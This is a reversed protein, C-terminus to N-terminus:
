KSEEREKKRKMAKEQRITENENQSAGVSQMGKIVWDGVTRDGLPQMLASGSTDLQKRVSQLLGPKAAEASEKAVGEPTKLGTNRARKKMGEITTKGFMSSIISEKMNQFSNGASTGSSSLVPSGYREGLQVLEGFEKAEAPELLESLMNRKNKLGTRLTGFMLGDAGTAQTALDGLASAKVVQMREPGLIFKLAEIKRTDGNMILSSFVKEAGIDKNGITNAVISKEGFWETMRANAERLSQSVAKGDAVDQQITKHISDTIDGYLARLRKIDPPNPNLANKSQFAADGIDRLAEVMQKVSGNSNRIATVSNILGKGQARFEQTVGREIRGKAFKELGNLKSALDDAAESSLKLGPYEQIVQDYSIEIDNFFKEYAEDYGRRIFEGAAVPDLVQGNGIQAIKNATAQRTADVGEQFKEFAVEGLVGERQQRAGRSIFSREGFEHAESLKEAPIGNKEAVARLSDWDAAQKPNFIQDLYNSVEEKTSAAAKIVPADRLGATAVRVREALTDGAKAVKTAVGVAELGKGAMQAIKGVPIVNTPDALVDVAAGAVDRASPLEVSVRENLEPAGVARAQGSTFAPLSVSPGVKSLGLGTKDVIEGGTPARPGAPDDARLARSPDEAFQSGYRRVAGLLGQGDQVAGIAARVPAGTVSDIMNGAKVVGGLAASGVRSLIGPAEERSTDVTVGPVDVGAAVRRLDDDSLKSLDSPKVATPKPQGALKRLEDDSLKSLDAM